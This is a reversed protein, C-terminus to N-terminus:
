QLESTHEESRLGRNVTVSTREAQPYHNTVHVNVGGGLGARAALRDVAARLERLERSLGGGGGGVLYSPMVTYGLRAAAEQLTQVGRSRMGASLPVVMEPGAEGVLAPGTVLGGRAFTPVVAIANSGVTILTKTPQSGPILGGAGAPPAPAILGPKTTASSSSKTAAGTSGGVAVVANSVDYAASSLGAVQAALNDIASSLRDIAEQLTSSVGVLTTNSEDITSTLDDTAGATTNAAEAMAKTIMRATYGVALTVND